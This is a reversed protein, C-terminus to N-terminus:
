RCFAGSFDFRSDFLFSITKAKAQEYRNRKRREEVIEYMVKARRMALSLEEELQDRLHTWEVDVRSCTSITIKLIRHRRHPPQHHRRLAKSAKKGFKQKPRRRPSPLSGRKIECACGLKALARPRRRQSRHCYCVHVVM